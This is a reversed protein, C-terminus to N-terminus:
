QLVTDFAWRPDWSIGAGLMIDSWGRTTPVGGPLVVQQGNFRYRQAIGLRLAEAGTELDLLRSTLGATVLNNDVVRDHGAFANESWITAFNFDYAGTDYNPLLSQDRYPTYVYMLRPELTQLFSRGFYRADREFVLGGDLSVTPLARGASTNGNAIPADFRYTSAHLQVKPTFFGWPRTFPRALQALVYSREANPQRTLGEDARFRTYDAEVSYDFGRDNVRAFRGVLQPMRDYPPVIPANVDQLTQWKLARASASWDGSAWGLSGDSALLRTTVNLGNRTFDKWYDNDSVRNINLNLAMRGVGPLGSDFTGNHRGFFGWRTRDALRDNPLVNANVQGRYDNELYRFEGAVDVGRRSMLAPTVTADRHPAINWYYPVALNLGSKSDLGLTPPLWGSKRQEGLPFSSTPLPLLPVGKIELVGGVALGEEEEQDIDLRDARLMWDPVWDPADGRLCTTYNGRFLSARDHDLMDLREASGHAGNALFQYTPQLFFGAGSDLQIQGETGTYRDGQANVRVGGTATVTDTPQDHVLKDGRAVLGPQRLEANGEVVTELGSRGTIRDGIVTRPGPADKPLQEALLPTAQLALPAGDQALAGQAGSLLALVGLVVPRLAPRAVTVLRPPSSPLAQM